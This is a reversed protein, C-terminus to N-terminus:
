AGWPGTVALTLGLHQINFFMTTGDPSFCSGAIEDSSRANRAFKYVEGKPTIRLLHDHGPGDECVFVDGWPSVCLNDANEVITGDDPEVWLELRGPQERERDTGEFPSPRYRWIQGKQAAGGNTAAIYVADNGYHIGECRAFRAAGADFARYRLDDNPSEVDDLDIWEVHFEDGEDAVHSEWNRTDLSPMGIVVRAQLRGGEHLKGPTKPIFRYLSGDALDETQYVCGSRPDIAVAERYFRGMARLPTPDALGRGRAPVEFAYGHDKEFLGGARDVCEECTIWSNWPTSGGACNRTTGALALEQAVVRRARTDYVVRTVGGVCPRTGHGADYIKAPDITRMRHYARGFPGQDGWHPEMEHNRMLVTLHPAAGPFAGMGDHFGPVVLGDDMREGLRSFVRYSFGAPLDLLGEPDPVLPGYGAHRSVVGMTSAREGLASRLGAYGLSAGAALRIFHRRSLDM